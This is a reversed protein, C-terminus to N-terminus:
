KERRGRRKAKEGSRKLVPFAVALDASIEAEGFFHNFGVTSEMLVSLLDDSLNKKGSNMRPM